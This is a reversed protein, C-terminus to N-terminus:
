RGALALGIRARIMGARNDIHADQSPLDSAPIVRSQDAPRAAYSTNVALVGVFVLATIAIILYDIRNLAARRPRYPAAMKNQHSNM